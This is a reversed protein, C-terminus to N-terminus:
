SRLVRFIAWLAIAGIALTLSLLLLELLSLPLLLLPDCKLRLMECGLLSDMRVIPGRSPHLRM